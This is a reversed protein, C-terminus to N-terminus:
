GGSAAIAPNDAELKRRAPRGAANVRPKFWFRTQCGPCRKPLQGSPTRAIWAHDCRQCVCACAGVGPAPNSAQGLHHVSGPLPSSVTENSNRDQDNVIEENM